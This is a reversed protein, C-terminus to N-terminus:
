GFKCFTSLVLSESLYNDYFYEENAYDCWMTYNPSTKM